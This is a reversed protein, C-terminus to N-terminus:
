QSDVTSCSINEIPHPRGVAFGQIYDIGIETLKELVAQTEVLEGITRIKLAHAFKNINEIKRLDEADRLMNCIISGDIKLFDAKIHRLLDFSTRDHNFSCLSVLCGLQQIKQVFSVTNQLNAIVDYTEIEFCFKEPQIKADKLFNQIYDVFM